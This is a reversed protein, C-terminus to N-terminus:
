DHLDIIGLFLALLVLKGLLAFSIGFKTLSTIKLMLTWTM